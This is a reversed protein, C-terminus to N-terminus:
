QLCQLVKNSQYFSEVSTPLWWGQLEPKILLHPLHFPIRGPSLTLSLPHDGDADRIRLPASGSFVRGLRSVARRIAIDQVHTRETEQLSYDFGSAVNSLSDDYVDSAESLLQELVQPHTRLFEFYSDEYLMQMQERSFSQNNVRWVLRWCGVGHVRDYEKLIAERHAGFYGPRDIDVWQGGKTPLERNM